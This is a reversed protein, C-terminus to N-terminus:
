KESLAQNISNRLDEQYTEIIRKIEFMDFGDLTTRSAKLLYHITDEEIKGLYGYLFDIQDNYKWIQKVNPFTQIESSINRIRKM